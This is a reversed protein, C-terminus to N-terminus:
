RGSFTEALRPQGHGQRWDRYDGFGRLRRRHATLGLILVLLQGYSPGIALIAYALPSVVDGLAKVGHAGIAVLQFGALWLPYTRNANLAIWMFAGFALVDFLVYLGAYNGFLMAGTAVFRFVAVPLIIFTLFTVASAREPGAGWRLMMLGVLLSAIYQLDARHDILLEFM